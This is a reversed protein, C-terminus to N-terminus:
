EDVSIYGHKDLKIGAKELGIDVNPERGIAWILCDVDTGVSGQNTYIELKGDGRKKV